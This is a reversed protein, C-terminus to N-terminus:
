KIWMTCLNPWKTLSNRTLMTIKPIKTDHAQQKLKSTLAHQTVQTGLERNANKHAAHNQKNLNVLEIAIDTSEQSIDQQNKQLEQLQKHMEIILKAHKPQEEVLRQFIALPGKHTEDKGDLTNDLCSMLVELKASQDVYKQMNDNQEGARTCMKGASSTLVAIKNELQEITYEQTANSM